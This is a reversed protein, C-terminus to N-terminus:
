YLRLDPNDLEAKQLTPTMYVKRTRDSTDSYNNLRDAIMGAPVNIFDTLHKMRYVLARFVKALCEPREIFEGDDNTYGNAIYLRGRHLKNGDKTTYSAEIVTNANANYCGLPLETDIQGAEPLHFYYESCDDTIISISRSMTMAEGDQKVIICGHKLAAKAIVIFVEREMYFNAQKGM